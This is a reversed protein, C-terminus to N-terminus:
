SYSKKYAQFLQNMTHWLPGPQGESIERGDLEIVPVIERTSSALWIESATLLADLSIIDEGYPINNSQALELIVDRTVGALIGDSKPPTLLVGDIVAFVNSAAGETLYGDKIMIAEASGKEVAQQRLLINALLNTSKIYCFQWRIDDVSIAKVGSSLETFPEIPASMAFVTPVVQKPFAHDRKEAVGRTIQLYIAQDFGPELLATLIDLWQQASHPNPLHIAALSNQLRTMHEEFRFLKGSYAPIVEYIGDAFLFGRDMVSIKAEALPLTQGNLYVMKNQM